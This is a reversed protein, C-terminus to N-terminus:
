DGLIDEVELLDVTQGKLDHTCDGLFQVKGDTVWSHCLFDGGRTRVSPMITPADTSGNWTWRGTGRRTTNGQVVPLFIVNSPGPFHIAVHTAEEVECPEVGGEIKKYPRAKM